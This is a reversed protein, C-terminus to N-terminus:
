PCCVISIEARGKALSGEEQAAALLTEVTSAMREAMATFQALRNAYPAPLPGPPHAALYDDAATRDHATPAERKQATRIRRLIEARAKSTDFSM